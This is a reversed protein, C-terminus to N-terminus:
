CVAWVERMYEISQRAIETPSPEYGFVEVSVWGQYDIDRLAEFISRYEIQGM